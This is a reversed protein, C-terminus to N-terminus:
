TRPPARLNIPPLVNFSPPPARTEIRAVAEATPLSTPCFPTPLLAVMHTLSVLPAPSITTDPNVVMVCNCSTSCAFAGAEGTTPQVCRIDRKGAPNNCCCYFLNTGCIRGECLWAAGIRAPAACTLLMVGALLGITLCGSMPVNYGWM